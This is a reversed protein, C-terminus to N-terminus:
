AKREKRKSSGVIRKLFTTQVLDFESFEKDGDSTMTSPSM